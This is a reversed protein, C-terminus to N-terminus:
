YYTPIFMVDVHQRPATKDPRLYAGPDILARAFAIMTQQVCGIYCLLICQATECEKRSHEDRSGQKTMSYSYLVLYSPFCVELNLAVQWLIGVRVAEHCMWVEVYGPINVERFRAGSVVQM